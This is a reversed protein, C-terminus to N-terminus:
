YMVYVCIYVHICTIYICIYVYVYCTSLHRVYLVQRAPQSARNSDVNNSASSIVNNNYLAVLIIVIAPVTIIVIFSMSPAMLNSSVKNVLEEKADM